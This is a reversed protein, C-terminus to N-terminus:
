MIFFFLQTINTIFPRIAMIKPKNNMEDSV